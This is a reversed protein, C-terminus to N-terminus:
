RAPPANLLDSVEQMDEATLTGSERKLVLKYRLYDYQAQQLDRQARFQDRLANFVDVSTVIGLEFGRKMAAYSTATAEALLKSAAIRSEGAKAKYWANRARDFVDLRTQKMQDEAVNRQSEAERVLARNSGGAFLPMSFNISAYNSDTRAIPANQYGIDSTQRGVILNVRPLYAGKRQSIAKDAAQLAYTSAEILKNNAKARDLWEELSGQLPQFEMNKPLRRLGGAELGSNAQLSAKSINLESEATILETKVAAQQAQAHYLDTVKALQLKYMQQIQNVQNTTAELESNMSNLTDEALLATLYNDAVVTLTQALQAYYEAESQSGQLYAQQRNAFAQWNFLVQSLQVSYNRGNYDTVPHPDQQYSNKSVSADANVQPLLQGNAYSIRADSAHWRQEAAKLTPNYNIASTFFDRLTTGVPDAAQALPAACVLLMFALPLSKFKLM